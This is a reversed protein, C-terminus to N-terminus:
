SRKYYSPFPISNQINNEYRKDANFQLENRVQADTLFM